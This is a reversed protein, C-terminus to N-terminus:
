RYYELLQQSLASRFADVLSVMDAYRMSTPGLAIAGVGYQAIRYTASVLSYPSLLNNGNEDGIQVIVGDNATGVVQRM